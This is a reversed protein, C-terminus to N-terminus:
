DDVEVARLKFTRQQIKGDGKFMAAYRLAEDDTHWRHAYWPNTTPVPYGGAYEDLQVYVNGTDNSEYKLVIAEDEM